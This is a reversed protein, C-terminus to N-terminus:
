SVQAPLPSKYAVAVYTGGMLHILDFRAFGAEKTWEKFEQPLVFQLTSGWCVVQLPLQCPESRPRLKFVQNIPCRDPLHM